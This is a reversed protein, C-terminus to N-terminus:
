VGPQASAILDADIARRSPCSKVAGICARVLMGITPFVHVLADLGGPHAAPELAFKDPTGLVIGTWHSQFTLSVDSENLAVLADIGAIRPAPIGASLHHLLAFGGPVVGLAVGAGINTAGSIVPNTSRPLLAQLGRVGAMSVKAHIRAVFVIAPVHRSQCRAPVTIPM